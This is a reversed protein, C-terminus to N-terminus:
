HGLVLELVETGINQHVLTTPHHEDWSLFGSAVPFDTCEPNIVLGNLTYICPTDINTYGLDEANDIQNAFSSYLDFEMIDVGTQREIKAIRKTLLKNFKVSLRTAIKPLRMVRKEEKTSTALALAQETNM